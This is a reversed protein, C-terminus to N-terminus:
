TCEFVCLLERRYLLFQVKVICNKTHVIWKLYSVLLERGIAGTCSMSGLFFLSIM